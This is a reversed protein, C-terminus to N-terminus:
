DDSSGGGACLVDLRNEVVLITVTALTAAVPIPLLATLGDATLAIVLMESTQSEQRKRPYDWEVCIKQRLWVENEEFWQQFSSKIAAVSPLRAYQVTSTETTPSSLGQYWDQYLKDNDALYDNVQFAITNTNMTTKM